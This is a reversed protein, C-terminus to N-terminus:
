SGPDLEAMLAALNQRSQATDPHNPGLRAERIALAREHLRRADDLDGQARLVNALNNLSAATTPHDAGLRAEHIALAREYLASADDLDGQAHLVSALNNLSDATTPDDADLRAECIALAREHLRRAGDLDRQDYLVNALNNLSNATGLHDAGLHAERIALARERLARAEGYRARGQLYDAANELLDSIILPKVGLQQAHDAAALGHPLLRACVPWLGPDAYGGFPLAAALLRVATAARAASTAPDLQDRIVQQVLRHMSLAQEDAKVLGFRRVAAVVEDLAFPDEAFVALEPASPDLRQAILDRPIAEPDLFACVELLALAGPVPRVQDVSVRWTSAVTDAPDRDRPRGRSLTLVPFQRLRDLYGALGMRTERVYAGAQELALPLFGLLEAVEAGASRDSSDSRALLFAMAEEAAFVELEAVAAHHEWSADRSTVLVQGHLVQPVLDLLQALPPELGTASTPATANDLILLWRDHGGLWRSVAEALLQQNAQGQEPLGLADALAAYDGVLTTPEEARVWWVVEFGARQRYAYEVALATKGIGGGGQLAQTIAAAGRGHQEALRELALERGTFDPNRRFPVNWVRPDGPFRPEPDGAGVAEVAAAPQDGPFAPEVAPLVAARGQVGELLAARAADQGKGVLDIYVRTALLGPPDFAAVRVPVLLGQEGTPDNAFAVRWEAEGFRSSFYSPSLVAVTRRATTTALQMEHVFDTGPVMDWAQLVVQYGAQTLQWGIWQAWQRDASTYSVFFDRGTGGRRDGM